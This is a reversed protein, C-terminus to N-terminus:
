KWYCMRWEIGQLDDSALVDILAEKEVESVGPLDAKGEKVANMLTPNQVIKQVLEFLM